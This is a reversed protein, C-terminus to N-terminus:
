DSRENEVSCNIIASRFDYTMSADPKHVSLSLGLECLIKSFLVHYNPETKLPIFLILYVLSTGCISQIKCSASSKKVYEGIDM